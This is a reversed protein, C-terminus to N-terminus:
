MSFFCCICKLTLFYKLKCDCNNKLVAPLFFLYIFLIKLFHSLKPKTCRAFSFIMSRNCFQIMKGGSPSCVWTTLWQLGFVLFSSKFTMQPYKKKKEKRKKNTQTNTYIYLWIHVFWSVFYMCCVTKACSNMTLMLTPLCEGEPGSIGSKM